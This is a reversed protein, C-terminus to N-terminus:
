EDDAHSRTRSARKIAPDTSVGLRALMRKADVSDPHNVLWEQLVARAERRRGGAELASALFLRPEVSADHVAWTEAARRAERNEGARLAAVAWARLAVPDTARNQASARADSLRSKADGDRLSARFLLPSPKKGRADDPATRLDPKHPSPASASATDTDAVVPAAPTAAAGPM